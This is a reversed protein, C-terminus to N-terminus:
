LFLIGKHTLEPCRVVGLRVAAIQCSTRAAKSEEAWFNAVEVVHSIAHKCCVALLWTALPCWPFPCCIAVLQSTCSQLLCKCPFLVNRGQRVHCSVPASCQLKAFAASVELMSCKTVCGKKGERDKLWFESCTEFSPHPFLDIKDQVSELLTDTHWICTFALHSDYLVGFEM